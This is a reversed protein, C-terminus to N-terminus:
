PHSVILKVQVLALLNLPPSIIGSNMLDSELATSVIIIPKGKLTLRRIVLVKMPATSDLTTAHFGDQKEAARRMDVVQVM